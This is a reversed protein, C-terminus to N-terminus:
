TPSQHPYLGNANLMWGLATLYHDYKVQEQVDKAAQRKVSFEEQKKMLEITERVRVGGLGEARQIIAPELRTLAEEIAQDRVRQALAPLGQRMAECYGDAFGRQYDGPMEAEPVPTPMEVIVRLPELNKSPFWSRLLTTLPRM